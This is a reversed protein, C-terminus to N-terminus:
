PIKQNLHKTSSQLVSRTWISNILCRQSSHMQTSNNGKLRKRKWSKLSLHKLYNLLISLLPLSAGTGLDKSLSDQWRFTELAQSRSLNLPPCVIIELTQVLQKVRKKLIKNTWQTVVLLQVRIKLQLKNAWQSAVLHLAARKSTKSDWQIAVLRLDKIEKHM